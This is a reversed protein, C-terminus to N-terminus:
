PAGGEAARPSPRAAKVDARRQQISAAVDFREGVDGQEWKVPAALSVREFRPSAELAPVVSSASRAIGALRLGASDATLRQLHASDPLARALAAMHDTWAPAESELRALTELKVRLGEVGSRAEMAKKVAPAIESRRAAVAAAEAEVGQLHFAASAVLLCASGAAFVLNRRKAAKAREVVVSRPLLAPVGERALAAGLAIIAEAPLEQVAAARVPPPTDAIGDALADRLAEADDGSGCVVLGDISLTGGEEDHIAAAIRQALAYAPEGPVTALPHVREPFGGQMVVLEVGSMTPAAVAVRGGRAGPALTRVAESLAVAGPVIRGVRFNAARIAAEVIEVVAEPACAALTPVLAGTRGKSVRRADAVLPEDRVPFHRRATRAVLASLEARRVPPLPVVKAHALRRLLAVDAAGGGVRLTARLDRLAETLGPWGDKEMPPLACELVEMVRPRGPGGSLRAVVLRDPALALALRARRLTSKPIPKTESETM